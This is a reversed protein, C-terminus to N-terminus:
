HRKIWKQPDLPVGKHRIEFYLGSQSQIGSTGVSSITDGGNVRDGVEKYLVDSNAYISLYDEGHDIITLNGYGRMWDSFVITGSAIARVDAGEDAKIFIGKWTAGGESLPAGFRISLTGPVPFHLQGKLRSFNMNSPKPRDGGVSPGGTGAPPRVSLKGLTEIINTLNLEDQNLAEKQARQSELKKTLNELAKKRKAQTAALTRQRNRQKNELETLAIRQNSIESAKLANQQMDSRLAEILELRAQGLHSFYHADRALQNFDNESLLFVVSDPGQLYSKRLWEALESQRLLIREELVRRESELQQLQAEVKKREDGLKRIERTIRSIERQSAALTATEKAHSKETSEIERQLASLRRKLERLDARADTLEAQASVQGAFFIAGIFLALRYLNLIIRM